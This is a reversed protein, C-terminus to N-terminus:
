KFINDWFLILISILFINTGCGFFKTIAMIDEPKDKNYCLNKFFSLSPSHKENHYVEQCGLQILMLIFSIVVVVLIFIHLTGLQKCESLKYIAVGILLIMKLYDSFHDYYDGFVSQMNYKRAYIGDICDFYYSLLFLACAYVYKSKYFSWVSLLGTILSLTTLNNPTMNMYKYYCATNDCIQRVINDNPCELEEPIKHNPM